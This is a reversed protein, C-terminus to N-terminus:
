GNRRKKGEEKSATAQCPQQDLRTRSHRMRKEDCSAIAKPEDYHPGFGQSGDRLAANDGRSAANSPVLSKLYCATADWTRRGIDRLLALAVVRQQM